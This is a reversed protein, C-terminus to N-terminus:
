ILSFGDYKAILLITVPNALLQKFGFFLGNASWKKSRKAEQSLLLAGNYACWNGALLKFTGHRGRNHEFLNIIKVAQEL